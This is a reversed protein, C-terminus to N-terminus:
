GTFLHTSVTGEKYTLILIESLCTFVSSCSEWCDYFGVAETVERSRLGSCFLFGALMGKVAFIGQHSYATLPSDWTSVMETLIM